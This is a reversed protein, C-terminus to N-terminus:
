YDIFVWTDGVQNMHWGREAALEDAREYLKRHAMPMSPLLPTATPAIAKLHRDQEKPVDVVPLPKRQIPRMLEHYRRRVAIVTKAKIRPWNGVCSGLSCLLSYAETGPGQHHLDAYNKVSAHMEVLEQKTKDPTAQEGTKQQVQGAQYPRSARGRGRVSGYRKKPRRIFGM